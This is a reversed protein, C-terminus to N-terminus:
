IVDEFSSHVPIARKLSCKSPLYKSQLKNEPAQEPQIKVTSVIKKAHQRLNRLPPIKKNCKKLEQESKPDLVEGEFSALDANSSSYRSPNKPYKKKGKKHTEPHHPNPLSSKKTCKISM